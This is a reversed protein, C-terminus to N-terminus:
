MLCAAIEYHNRIACNIANSLEDDGSTAIAKNSKLCTHSKNSTLNIWHGYNWQSLVFPIVPASFLRANETNEKEPYGIYHLYNPLDNDVAVGVTGKKRKEENSEAKSFVTSQVVYIISAM